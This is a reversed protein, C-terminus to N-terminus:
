VLRVTLIRYFNEKYLMHHSSCRLHDRSRMVLTCHDIATQYQGTTYYLVALVTSTQWATSPTATLTKVDWRERCVLSTLEAACSKIAVAKMLKAAKSLSLLISNSPHISICSDCSNRRFITFYPTCCICFCLFWMYFSNFGLWVRFGLGLRLTKKEFKPQM